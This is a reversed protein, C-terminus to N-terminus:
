WTVPVSSCGEWDVAPDLGVECMLSLLRDPQSGYRRAPAMPDFSTLLEGDVAYCFRRDANVNYFVSVAETRDSLARLVEPRTGQYDNAEYLVTWDGTQTALVIRQYRPDLTDSLWPL